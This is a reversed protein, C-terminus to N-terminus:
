SIQGDVMLKSRSIWNLTGTPTSGMGGTMPHSNPFVRSLDGNVSANVGVALKSDCIVWVLIDKPQPLFRPYGCRLM